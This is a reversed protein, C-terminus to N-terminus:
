GRARLYRVMPVLFPVLVLLMSGAFVGANGYLMPASDVGLLLFGMTPKGFLGLGDALCLAGVGGLMLPGWTKGRILGIFGAVTAALVAFQLVE